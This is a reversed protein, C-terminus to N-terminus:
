DTACADCAAYWQDETMPQGVDTLGIKKAIEEVSPVGPYTIGAPVDSCMGDHTSRILGALNDDARMDDYYQGDM